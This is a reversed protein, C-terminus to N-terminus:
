EKDSSREWIERARAEANCNMCKYSATYEVTNDDIRHTRHELRIIKSSHCLDCSGILGFNKQDRLWKSFIRIKDFLGLDNKM